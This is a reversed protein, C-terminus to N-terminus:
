SERLGIIGQHVTARLQPYGPKTMQCRSRRRKLSFVLIGEDAKGSQVSSKRFQRGRKHATWHYVKGADQKNAKQWSPNEFQKYSVNSHTNASGACNNGYQKPLWLRQKLRSTLYGAVESFSMRLNWKKKATLTRAQLTNLGRSENKANVFVEALHSKKCEANLLSRDLGGVRSTVSKTGKEWGPVNQMLKDEVVPMILPELCKKALM